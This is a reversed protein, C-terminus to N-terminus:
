LVQAPREANWTEMSIIVISPNWIRIECVLPTEGPQCNEPNAFLPTLVSAVNFGTRVAESLAIGVVPFTTSRKRCINM